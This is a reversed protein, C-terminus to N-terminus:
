ELSMRKLEFNTLLRSVMAIVRTDSNHKQTIIALGTEEGVSVYVEMPAYPDATALTLRQKICRLISNLADTCVETWVGPGKPTLLKEIPKVMEKFKPVFLSAM